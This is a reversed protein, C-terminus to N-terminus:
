DGQLSYGFKQWHWRLFPLHEPALRSLSLDPTLGLISQTDLELANAYVAHGNADFTMLGQDFLADLHIALLFGNFVNLREADSSCESWPKAHSARLLKPLRIGTVACAGDWFDLLSERFINQGVRQRVTREVETQLIETRSLEEKVAEQYRIEPQNPLSRALKAARNLLVGLEADRNATFSAEPNSEDIERNLERALTGTPLELQWNGTESPTVRAEARHLASALIVEGPNSVVVVEWGNDYGAKEILSRELSNM